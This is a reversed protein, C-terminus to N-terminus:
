KNKEKKKWEKYKILDEKIIDEFIDCRYKAVKYYGNIEEPTCYKLLREIYEKTMKRDFEKHIRCVEIGKKTINLNRESKNKPNIKQKILGENELKSLSLSVTSKTRYTLEAIEKALIKPNDKIFSLMHVEVEGLLSGTGYDRPVSRYLSFLMQHRFIIDVKKDIDEFPDNSLELKTNDKM